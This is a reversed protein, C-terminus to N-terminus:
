GCPQDTDEEQEMQGERAPSGAQNVAPLAMHGALGGPGALSLPLALFSSFALEKREVAGVRLAFSPVM